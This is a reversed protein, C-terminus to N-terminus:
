LAASTRQLPAHLAMLGAVWDIFVRVKASVHRQPPYAVYLPMPALTWDQLLPVLEGTAVHPRAMYDPLWLVGLGALGAALYANGDDVACVDHGQARVHETGRRMEFPLPSAPARGCFVWPATTRAKWRRRTSPRARVCCTAPPPTCACNCTVWM